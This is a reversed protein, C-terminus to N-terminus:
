YSLQNVDFQGKLLSLVVAYRDACEFVFIYKCPLPKSLYINLKIVNWFISTGSTKYTIVFIMELVTFGNYKSM